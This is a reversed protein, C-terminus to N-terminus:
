SFVFECELPICLLLSFFFLSFFSILFLFPSLKQKVPRTAQNQQHFVFKEASACVCLGKSSPPLLAPKENRENRKGGKKKEENLLADTIRLASIWYRLVTSFICICEVRSYYMGYLPVDGHHSAHRAVADRVGYAAGPPVVRREECDQYDFM